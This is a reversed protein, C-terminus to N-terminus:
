LITSLYQSDMWPFGFTSSKARTVERQRKRMAHVFGLAASSM